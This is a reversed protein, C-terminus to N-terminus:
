QDSCQSFRHKSGKCGPTVIVIRVFPYLNISYSSYTRTRKTIYPTDIDPDSDFKHSWFSSCEDITSDTSHSLIYLTTSPRCLRSTSITGSVVFLQLPLAFAAQDCMLNVTIVTTLHNGSYHDTNVPSIFTTRAPLRFRHSLSGFLLGVIPLTM